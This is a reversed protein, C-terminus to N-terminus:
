GLAWRSKLAKICQVSHKSNFTTYICSCVSLCVSQSAPSPPRSEAFSLSTMLDNNHQSSHCVVWDLFSQHWASTWVNNLISVQCNADSRCSAFVCALALRDRLVCKVCPRIVTWIKFLFIVWADCVGSDLQNKWQRSRSSITSSKTM